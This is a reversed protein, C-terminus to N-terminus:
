YSHILQGNVYSDTRILYEINTDWDYHYIKEIYTNTEANFNEIASYYMLKSNKYYEIRLLTINDNDYISTTRDYFIPIFKKEETNNTTEKDIVDNSDIEEINNATDENIVINNDDTKEQTPINDDKSIIEIDEAKKTDYVNEQKNVIENHSLATAKDTTEHKNENQNDLKKSLNNEKNSTGNNLPAQSTVEVNPTAVKEDTSVETVNVQSNSTPLGSHMTPITIKQTGIIFVLSCIMTIFKIIM